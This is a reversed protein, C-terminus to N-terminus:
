AHGNHRDASLPPEDVGLEHDLQPGLSMGHRYKRYLMAGLVTAVVFLAMAVAVQWFQDVGTGSGVLAFILTQPLYGLASGLFFPVSRAGSVGAAINVLGNNGVPLLRILLTMSFTNEKIFLGVKDLRGALHRLLFASVLYRAVYFTTICGAVVALSALLVGPLFGFAYGSLFAILQRSLGASALLWGTLLFLLEGSVGQGRVHVDVWTKDIVDGLLYSVLALVVIVVLGRFIFRATM